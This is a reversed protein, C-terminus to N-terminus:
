APCERQKWCRSRWEWPPVPNPEAWLGLGKRRAESQLDLLSRDRLYRGKASTNAWAMGRRVMEANVSVGEVSLACVPRNYRGDYEPCDAVVVQGQVLRQLLRQSAEGYPQGVRGEERSTHAIEPADISALRVKVREGGEVRLWVTDGDEVREVRGTLIPAAAAPTWPALAAFGALLAGYCAARCSGAGSGGPQTPGARTVSLCSLMSFMSRTFATQM